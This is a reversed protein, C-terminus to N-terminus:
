TINNKILYDNLQNKNKFVLKIGDCKNLCRFHKKRRKRKRGDILLWKKFEFDFKDPIGLSERPIIKHENYRKKAMKYCYVRNYNLFITIDSQEFRQPSIRTYNGDIVWGNPNESLFADVIENQKEISREEWKGYYQVTDLYLVPVKYYHALKKALTSKGSGSFGIIQIKM